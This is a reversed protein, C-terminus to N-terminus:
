HDVLFAIADVANLTADQETLPVNLLNDLNSWVRM